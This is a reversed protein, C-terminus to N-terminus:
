REGRSHFTIAGTPCSRVARQIQDDGAAAPDAVVAIGEDNLEFARPALHVCTGSGICVFEDIEIPDSM